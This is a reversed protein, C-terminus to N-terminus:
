HKPIPSADILLGKKRTVSTQVGHRIWLQTHIQRYMNCFNCSCVVNGFGRKEIYWMGCTNMPGKASFIKINASSTVGSIAVYLQGHYFVPSLLYVGFAM